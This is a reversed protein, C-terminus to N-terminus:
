SSPEWAALAADILRGNIAGAGSDCADALAVHAIRLVGRLEGRLGGQYHTFLREIGEDTIVESLLPAADPESHVRVRSALVEAIAAPAALPPVDVRTELTRDIDRRAPISTLYHGHVSVVLSCRLEALAPLVRGFFASVLHDPDPYASGSLWRDTDDFVLVPTLGQNRITTLMQHVVELTETASREIARGPPVQRSLDASVTAGMWGAALRLNRGGTRGVPRHATIRALAEERRDTSIAQAETAYRAIVGAIHAFMARPESVIDTPEVAVPVLVPAVGEALPGLVSATLSSKGTGSDGVIAVREFRRCADLLTEEPHNTGVLRSFPVHYIGLDERVPFPDFAHAEQLAVLQESSM